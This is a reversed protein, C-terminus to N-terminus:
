QSMYEEMENLYDSYLFREQQEDEVSEEYERQESTVRM